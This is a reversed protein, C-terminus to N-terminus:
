PDVIGVAKLAEALPELLAQARATAGSPFDSLDAVLQAQTPDSATFLLAFGGPVAEFTYVPGSLEGFRQARGGLM